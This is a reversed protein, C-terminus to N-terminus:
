AIRDIGDVFRFDALGLLQQGLGLLRQEGIVVGGEIGLQHRALRAQHM